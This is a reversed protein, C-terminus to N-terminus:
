FLIVILNEIRIYDSRIYDSKIVSSWRLRMTGEFKEIRIYDSKIWAIDQM